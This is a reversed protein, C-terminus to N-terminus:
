KMVLPLYVTHEGEPPVAPAGSWFGGPLSYSASTLPLGADPQGPLLLGTGRQPAPDASEAVLARLEDMQAELDDVRGRLEANEEALAQSLRRRAVDAM